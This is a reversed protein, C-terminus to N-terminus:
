AGTFVANISYIEVTQSYQNTLQFQYSQYATLGSIEGQILCYYGLTGASDSFNYMNASAVSSYGGNVIGTGAVTGGGGLITLKFFSGNYTDQVLMIRFSFTGNNGTSCQTGGGIVYTEGSAVSLNLATNDYEAQNIVPATTFHTQGSVTLSGAISMNGSGDDLTNNQTVLPATIKAGASGFWHYATVDTQASGTYKALVFIDNNSSAQISNAMGSILDVEHTETLSNWGLNFGISANYIDPMTGQGNYNSYLAFTLWAAEDAPTQFNNAGFLITNSTPLIGRTIDTTLGNNFTQEATWTNANGLNVGLVGGSDTLTSNIPITLSGTVDLTGTVTIDVTEVKTNANITNATITSFTQTTSWTNEHALNLGIEIDQGLTGIMLTNTSSALTIGGTLTNLSSVGATATTSNVWNTGNYSLVQGSVLSTVNLQTGGFSINNGFTQLASWTNANALNLSAVVSGTTPSITLTGDNNQVSDVLGLGSVTTNVWNTGDFELIQSSSLSTVNVKGGGISINNGFTQLGTWVNAHALNIEADVTGTSSSFTLTGTSSKISNVAVVTATTSNVWNTGNYKLFQGNVLSAVNLQAGGFSINNGFTQLATWTNATAFLDTSNGNLYLSGGITTDGSDNTKFVTKGSGVAYIYFYGSTNIGLDYTEYPSSIYLADFNAKAANVLELAPTNVGSVTQKATWTNANALNLSAVVDGTTPSITLTGDSNSVSTVAGLGTSSAKINVWDTGNYQLIDGSVLTSSEVKAGGFSINNGFTQIASWTNPTDFLTTTSNVYLSTVHISGVNLRNTIYTTSGSFTQIGAWDNSNNTNIDFNITQGTTGITISNNPSALAIVGKLGYVSEVGFSSPTENVWNTGNYYLVQGSTLTSSKVQAGGFSINNGFTQLADWTNAHGVNVEIDVAGTSSAVSITGTSSRVSTVGATGLPTNIWDTGNFYLVDGSALTSSHVQAGGFSINNGFTQLGGWTNAHALNLESHITQGSVGFSLTATSSALTVAGTLGNLSSLATSSVERNIWNTGNYQLVEGATLGVVDLQAGGLSINNGFTQLASWDNANSTNLYLYVAGTTPSVTISGDLGNVSSVGTTSTIGINIDQGTRTIDVGVGGVFNINGTAYSNLVGAGTVGTNTITLGSVSIGTGGTIATTGTSSNISLVGTNSITDGVVSIGLGGHVGVAAFSADGLQNIRGIEIGNFFFGLNGDADEKVRFGNITALTLSQNAINGQIPSTM